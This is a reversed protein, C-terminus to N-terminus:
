LGEKEVYDGWSTVLYRLRRHCLLVTPAYADGANCYVAQINQHYNDIWEGELAEVGFTGLAEDIAAMVLEDDSPRHYCQRLWARAALSTEPNVTGDMLGRIRRATDRCVQLGNEITRISPYM